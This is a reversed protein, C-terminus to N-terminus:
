WKPSFNDVIIVDNGLERELDFNIYGRNNKKKRLIKALPNM